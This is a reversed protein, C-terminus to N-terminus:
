EKLYVDARVEIQFIKFFFQYILMHVFPINFLSFTPFTNLSLHM